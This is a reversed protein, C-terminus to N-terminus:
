TRNEYEKVTRELKEVTLNPNNTQNSELTIKALANGYKLPDFNNIKAYIVGSLFADGAGSTNKINSQLPRLHCIRDKEGYYSGKAGDTIFVEKLGRELLIKILAEAGLETGVLTQAELLNCKIGNLKHLHPKFKKVKTISIAEAYIPKDCNNTIYSITENDLNSDIIILGYKNFDINDKLFEVSLNNIIKMDNIGVFFDDEENFIALYTSTKENKVNPTIIKLGINNFHNKAQHGFDDDGIATLFTTDVNLRVLNEAINKGVGGVSTEVKGINSNYLLLDESVLGNIDINTGGIVLVKM